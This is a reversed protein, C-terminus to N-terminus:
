QKPPFPERIPQRQATLGYTISRGLGDLGPFITKASIGIEYLESKISGFHSTPVTCTEVALERPLMDQFHHYYRADEYFEMQPHLTFCSSQAELRRNVYTPMYFRFPSVEQDFTKTDAENRGEYDYIQADYIKGRYIRTEFEADAQEVAFFLSVLPNTTWDLLRTPVRHHQALAMWEIDSAPPSSLWAPAERRFDTLLQHELDALSTGPRKHQRFISPVLLTEFVLGEVTRWRAPQARYIFTAIDPQGKRAFDIFDSLTRIEMTISKAFTLPWRGSVM